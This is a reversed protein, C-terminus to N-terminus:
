KEKNVQGTSEQRRIKEESEKRECRENRSESMDKYLYNVFGRRAM